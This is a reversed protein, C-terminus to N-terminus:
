IGRLLSQLYTTLNIQKNTVNLKRRIQGRHRNITASSVGRLEAIEKTRLGNRIMNCINLETPTLARLQNSFRNIHPSTIEELNTRLIEIYKRKEKAVAPTLSHLVPMVLNDINLQINEYIRRKEDEINSLVTRLVANSEQLAKRELLLLNNNRQLEQGAIVRVAFEGIDQAVRELLDREEKLFPGEDAAPQEQLYVIIVEGMIVEGARIQASQKWKTLEFGKSKFVDGRFNIRACAAEAYRWFSPLFDVLEKLFDRISDHHNKALCAMGYLCNLEKLREQLEIEISDKQETKM